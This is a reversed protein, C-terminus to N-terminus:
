PTTRESAAGLRQHHIRAVDWMYRNLHPNKGLDPDAARRIHVAAQEARGTAELYLGLYLDAYFRRAARQADTGPASEIAGLVDEATAVGRYLDYIQMMPIRSDSQIPLLSRRAADVGEDAAVCLFRWVSNEVDNDAYTQYLAFQRAGDAFRRAYYLAIGREWQRSQLDPRLEVYRDFDAVAAEIRGLRFQERGRLYYAGTLRPDAALAAGALRVAREGDGQQAAVQAEALLDTATPEAAVAPGGSALLYLVIFLERRALMAPIVLLAPAIGGM